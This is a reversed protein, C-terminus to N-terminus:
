FFKLLAGVEPHDILPNRNGQIESITQNRHREWATVPHDQHWQLLTAIRAKVTKLDQARIEDPYRILFYLTARAGAGKGYEPEFGQKSDDAVGSKGCRDTVSEFPDPQPDPEYASFDFYPKNGRKSNCDKECTFLHHLDSVMPDNKAYWSQPVVHECNYPAKSSTKELMDDLSEGSASEFSSLGSFDGEAFQAALEADVTAITALEEAVVDAPAQKVGSYLSRLFRDKHVDVIPYLYHIRAKAYSNIPQHTDTVMKRLRDMLGTKKTLDADAYYAARKPAIDAETRFRWGAMRSEMLASAQARFDPAAVATNPRADTTPAPQLQPSPGQGVQLLPQGHGPTGNAPGFSLEFLWRARGDSSLPQSTKPAAREDTAATGMPPDAFCATYLAGKSGNLGLSDLHAVIRSIRVGENAVWDILNPDDGPMFTSGDIKLIHKTVPDRKPVGSHHLAALEWGDNLVPSGSSGRETDTDYHQFDGIPERAQNNRFAIMQREGRPHQVINLWEGALAKGSERILRCWIRDATKSAGSEDLAVITFDLAKNTEFFAAPDLRVEIEPMAGGTVDYAYDFQISSRAAIDASGLVHNNTMVLRPSIRFGTGHGLVAGAANRVIVRGVSRAVHLGKTFFSTPRLDNSQIIREQLLEGQRSGADANSVLAEAAIQSLGKSQMRVIRRSRSELSVEKRSKEYREAAENLLTVDLKM